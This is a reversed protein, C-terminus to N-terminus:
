NRTFTLPVCHVPRFAAPVQSATLPVIRVPLKLLGHLMRGQLVCNVDNEMWKTRALIAHMVCVLTLVLVFSDVTVIQVRPAHLMQIRGM